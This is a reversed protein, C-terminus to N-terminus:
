ASALDRGPIPRDNLAHLQGVDANLYRATTTLTTHGLWLSVAHMPYGAELKRSGAEHRLDHFRLGTIGARRCAAYWATKIDKVRTGAPTGFVYHQNGGGEPRVQRRVLVEHLALSIPIRRPRKTKTKTGPLFVENRAWHIQAWQLSLLEQKRCGTELAAVVVDRLHAGCAALLRGAEDDVLRRERAHEPRM